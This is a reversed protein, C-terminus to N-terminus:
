HVPGWLVPLLKQGCRWSWNVAVKILLLMPDPVYDTKESDLSFKFVEINELEEDEKRLLKPICVGKKKISKKTDLLMKLKYDKDGKKKAILCTFPSIKGEEEEETLSDALALVMDALLNTAKHLDAPSCNSRKLFVGGNDDLDHYPKTCLSRYAENSTIPTRNEDFKGAIALVEYGQGKKWEHLEEKSIIPVFIWCPSNDFMLGHNSPTRLFNTDSKVMGDAFKKLESADSISVGCVAQCSVAFPYKCNSEPVLHARSSPIVGNFDPNDFASCSSKTVASSASSESNLASSDDDNITSPSSRRGINVESGDKWTGAESHEDIHGLTADTATGSRRARARRARGPPSVRKATKAEM